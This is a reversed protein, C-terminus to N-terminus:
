RRARASRPFADPTEDLGIIDSVVSRIGGADRPWCTSRRAGPRPPAVRLLRPGAGGQLPPREVPVAIHTTGKPLGGFFLVRGRPAAMEMAEEQAIDSSCAVIVVDAGFGETARM